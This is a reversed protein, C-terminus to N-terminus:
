IWKQLKRNLNLYVMYSRADKLIQTLKEPVLDIFCLKIHRIQHPDLYLTKNSM